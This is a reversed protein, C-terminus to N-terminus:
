PPFCEELHKSTCIYVRGRCQRKAGEMGCGPPFHGSRASAGPPLAPERCARLHGLPQCPANGTLPMGQPDPGGYDTAPNADTAADSARIVKAADKARIVKRERGKSSRM